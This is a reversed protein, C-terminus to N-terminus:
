WARTDVYGADIADRRTIPRAMHAHVAKRIRATEEARAQAERAQRAERRTKIPNWM